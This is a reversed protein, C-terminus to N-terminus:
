MGAGSEAITRADPCSRPPRHRHLIAPHLDSRQPRLLPRLARLDLVKNWSDLVPKDLVERKLMRQATAQVLKLAVITSEGVDDVKRLADPHAAM